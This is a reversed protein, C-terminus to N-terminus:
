KVQGQNQTQVQFWNSVNSILLHTAFVTVTFICGVFCIIIGDLQTKIKDRKEEEQSEKIRYHAARDTLEKIIEISESSLEGIL